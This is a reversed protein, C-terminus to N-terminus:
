SIEENQYFLIYPTGNKIDEEGVKNVISDNFLYWTEDFHKCYAIFHGEMSSKGLHSIVGNLNFIKPSNPNKIFKSLNLKHPFDVDCEFINGKGRNLILILVHPALYIETKNNAERLKKCTNCYINNDGSLLEPKFYETFCDSLNLKRKGKKNKNINICTYPNFQNDSNNNMNFRNYLNNNNKNLSNYTKELPFILFNFLGYSEEGEKCSNCIIATKQFGFFLEAFISNHSKKFNEKKLYEISQGIFPSVKSKNNRKTLETDM